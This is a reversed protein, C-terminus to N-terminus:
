SQALLTRFWDLRAEAQAIEHALWRGFVGPPGGERRHLDNLRVLEQEAMEVMAEAQIRRQGRALLHLFRLKLALALKSLDNVPPRLAAGMLREFEARGAPTVRMVAAEGAEWAGAGAVPEILGEVKLLSIPPGVLDLSPGTIRATFQRVEAALESYPKPGLALSGLAALRVAESPILSRDSYM